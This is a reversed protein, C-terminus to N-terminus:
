SIEQLPAGRSFGNTTYSGFLSEPKEPIPLNMVTNLNMVTIMSVKARNQVAGFSHLV